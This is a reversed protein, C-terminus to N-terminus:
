KIKVVRIRDIFDSLLHIFAFTLGIPVSVYAIWMPMRLASSKQLAVNSSLIWQYSYYMLLLLFALILLNAIFTIIKQIKEPLYDVVILVAAQSKYKLGLSGGLFTLWVMLFISVEGAWFIPANLFYRFVVAATLIVTMAFMFVVALAKEISEIFDSVVKV